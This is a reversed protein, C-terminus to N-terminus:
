DGFRDVFLSGAGHLSQKDRRRSDPLCDKLPDSSGLTVPRSLHLISWDVNRGVLPSDARLRVGTLDHEIGLYGTLVALLPYYSDVLM